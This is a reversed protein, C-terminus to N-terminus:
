RGAGKSRRHSGVGEPRIWRPDRQPQPAGLHEFAVEDADHHRGGADHDSGFRHPTQVVLEHDVANRVPHDCRHLQAGLGSHHCRIRLSGLDAAHGTWGPAALRERQGGAGSSESRFALRHQHQAEVQCKACRNRLRTPCRQASYPAFGARTVHVLKWVNQARTTSSAAEAPMTAASGVARFRAPSSRRSSRRRAQAPNRDATRRPARRRLGPSGAGTTSGAAGRRTQSRAPLHEEDGIRRHIQVALGTPRRRARKSDAPKTSGHISIVPEYRIAGSSISDVFRSRERTRRRRRESGTPAPPDPRPPRFATEEPWRAHRLM